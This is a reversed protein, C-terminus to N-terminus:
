SANARRRMLGRQYDNYRERHKGRWRAQRAYGSSTKPPVDASPKPLPLKPLSAEKPLPKPLPAEKPLVGRDCPDALMHRTKCNRCLQHQM